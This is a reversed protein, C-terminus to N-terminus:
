RMLARLESVLAVAVPFNESGSKVLYVCRPCIKFIGSRRGDAFTAVMKVTYAQGSASLPRPGSLPGNCARCKGASM